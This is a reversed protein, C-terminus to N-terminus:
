TQLDQAGAPFPSKQGADAERLAPRHCPTSGWGWVWVWVWGSSIASGNDQDIHYMIVNDQNGAM